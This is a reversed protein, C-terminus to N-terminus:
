KIRHGVAKEIQLAIADASLHHHYFELVKKRETQVDLHSAKELSSALQDVNGPEFL